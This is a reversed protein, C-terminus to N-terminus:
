VLLFFLLLVVGLFVGLECEFFERLQVLEFMLLYDVKNFVVFVKGVYMGIVQFFVLENQGLLQDVLIVFVVVDVRFLYGLIVDSNYEYILGVGLMDVLYMGFDFVLVMFVVEWVGKVNCFNVVEIVYFVFMVFFVYFVEGFDLYVIMVVLIGGCLEIVVLMLLVVGFLLLDVGVLVNILMSKGCKFEGVVVLQIVYVSFCECLVVFVENNGYCFYCVVEIVVVVRVWDREYVENM